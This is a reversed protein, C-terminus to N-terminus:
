MEDGDKDQVRKKRETEDKEEINQRTNQDEGDGREKWAGKSTESVTLLKPHFSLSLSVTRSNSLELVAREGAAM